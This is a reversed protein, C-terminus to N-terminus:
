AVERRFKMNLIFVPHAMIQKVSTIPNLHMKTLRSIAWGTSDSYLTSELKFCLACACFWELVSGRFM